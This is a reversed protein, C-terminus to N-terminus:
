LIRLVLKVSQEHDDISVHELACGRHLGAVAMCAFLNCVPCGIM